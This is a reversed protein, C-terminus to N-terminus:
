LHKLYRMLIGLSFSGILIIFNIVPSWWASIGIIVCLCGVLIIICMIITLVIFGNLILFGLDEANHIGLGLKRLQDM